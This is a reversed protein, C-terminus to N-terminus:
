THNLIEFGCQPCSVMPVYQSSVPDWSSKTQDVSGDELFINEPFRLKNADLVIGCEDCSVLNM